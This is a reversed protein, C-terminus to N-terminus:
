LLTKIESITEACEFPKDWGKDKETSCARAYTIRGKVQLPGLHRGTIDHLSGVVRLLMRKTPICPEVMQQNLEDDTHAGRVKRCLYVELAPSIRDNVFDWDIGLCRELTDSLTM